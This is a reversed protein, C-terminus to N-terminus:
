RYPANLVYQKFEDRFGHKKLVPAYPSERVATGNITEVVVQPLPNWRRKVLHFLPDFCADILVSKHDICFDLDRGSRRSVMLITGGSIVIHNSALRSPVGPYAEAMGLGSPSAPDVASMWVVAENSASTTLSELASRVAFQPLAVDKVFLGSVVEGSLEMLRLARSIQPWSFAGGERNVLERFVIGYRRLLVRARERELETQALPDLEDAPEIVSWRGRMLAGAGRRGRSRTFGRSTSRAPWSRQSSDTERPSEFRQEIGRRLPSFGDATILGQWCAAWIVPVLEARSRGTEEILEHVTMPTSRVLDLITGALPDTEKGDTRADALYVGRESDLAFTVREKGTGAWLLDHDAFLGDLWLPYYEDLRAPIIDAEWSAAPAGYGFLQDLTEVLADPEGTRGFGMMAVWHPVLATAEVPDFEPRGRQRLMRLLSELNEADCIQDDTASANLKGRIVLDDNELLGILEGIAGRGIGFLAEIAPLSLPGYFRLIEALVVEAEVADDSHWESLAGTNEGASPDAWEDGLTWVEPRPQELDAYLSALAALRTVSTVLSEGGVRIWRIAAEQGAVTWADPGHDREVAKQLAGLEERPIMVREAIWDHIEEAGEPSYGPALRTLRESLAAVLDDPLLPRVSDGRAVERLLQDSLSSRIGGELSDDKYMHVNTQQWVVEAAFPSPGATTVTTVSIEGTAIESLVKRLAPLDFEDQLCNRWTELLIPFDELTATATLIKKSRLRNLWLPVRKGFGGRPLLLARGANERFLAGFRASQELRERLLRELEGQRLLRSAIAPSVLSDPPSDSPLLLVIVDNDAFYELKHGHEEEWLAALAIALPENVRGGWGMHVLIEQTEEDAQTRPGGLVRELLIHHRHPLAAGTSSRQLQVLSSIGERASAGLFPIGTLFGDIDGDRAAKECEELFALIRESAHPDRGRAEARWFPIANVDPAAPAVFVDRETIRKITWTQSGFVFSEGVRREWVFEEDLEGIQGGSESRMGYYGRDPITGGSQYLLTTTGDRASIDNTVPDIRIRPNLDRVRTQAYRGALMELVLEYHERLLEHYAAVTRIAAFLAEKNWREMSTMSLIVQALVDLPAHAPRVEEIERALAAEAMAVAEIMDHGFLPYIVGRSTEGVQHGARGVRQLTSSVSLPTKVMVVQDLAGVDIGLELSNTAVIARLRGQKLSQEVFYRLERALSGHHSYAIPEDLGENLLLTIKEAHRRTAVFILTSTRSNIIGRLDRVLHPWLAEEVGQGIEATTDPFDVTLEILKPTPDVITAVDRGKYSTDPGLTGQPEFGGVFQAVRDLPRVTASIAIRQVGGTMLAVREVATMLHTGRKSGVIAHIEDLIVTRVSRLINRARKSTLILNLSEPTTILIEPPRTVMKRRDSQPTDGSRTLARIEPLTTGSEDAIQRIEALPDLLNRQIDNNLAKLPSVYLVSTSGPEWVGSIIRDIAVLFATLTKGSGTPASILVNEGNQIRPWSAQQITTPSDFRASFWRRVVPTFRDLSLETSAMACPIM